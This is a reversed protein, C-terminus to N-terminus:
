YMHELLVRLALIRDTTSRKQTFWSQEPRQHKLLHPRIRDLLIRALVKSPVSLLTVGRYANCDQRDGKGKWLPVIIGRKWDSPIVGTSWVSCLIAHLAQVTSDGGAKLYEAFIGCVGAAKGSKLRSVAAKTELLTPPDCDIPPDAVLPHDAIDLRSAPPDARYLQEFYSAWRARVESEETLLEGSASRVSGFRPVPKSSRLTRIGEYAPRSDSTWLHNEVRECISRVHAEKDARLSSLALRRLKRAEQDGNLRAVRSEDILRLTGESVFGRRALRRVGHREGAVSLTVTKFFDWM